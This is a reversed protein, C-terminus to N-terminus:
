FAGTLIRHVHAPQTLVRRRGVREGHPHDGVIQALAGGEVGHLDGLVQHLVLQRASAKGERANKARVGWGLGGGCPPRPSPQGDAKKGRGRSPPPHPHPHTAPSPKPRCRSWSSWAIASPTRPTSAGTAPCLSTTSLPAARRVFGSPWLRSIKWWSHRMPRAGP